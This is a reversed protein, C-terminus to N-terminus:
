LTQLWKAVAQGIEVPSDEQIFHLGKVTVEHQNPWSRCFERQKGVLISGPEANIFLKPLESTAMFKGYEEVLAVVAAPEGEIPIQRPWNLTPQRDAPVAFPGRYAEMEADTLPGKNRKIVNRLVQAEREPRYYDVANTFEGKSARVRYALRARASILEQIQEDLQDIEDRVAQLPNNATKKKNDSPM